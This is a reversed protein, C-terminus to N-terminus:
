KSKTLEQIISTLKEIQIELNSITQNKEQLMKEYVSKVFELQGINNNYTEFNGGHSNPGTNYNIVPLEESLFYDPKVHYLDALQHIREVTLKSKGSELNSYTKQTIDLVNAVYEQSYDNSERLIRMIKQPREM